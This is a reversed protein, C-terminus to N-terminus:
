WRGGLGTGARRRDRQRSVVACLARPDVVTAVLPEVENRVSRYHASVAAARGLLRKAPPDESNM